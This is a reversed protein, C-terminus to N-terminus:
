NYYSLRKCRGDQGDTRRTTCTIDARSTTMHINVGVINTRCDGTENCLNRVTKWGVAITM